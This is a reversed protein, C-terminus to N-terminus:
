TLLPYPVVEVPDMSEAAGFLHPIISLTKVFIKKKEKREGTRPFFNDGLTKTKIVRQETFEPSYYIIKGPVGNPICFLRGPLRL